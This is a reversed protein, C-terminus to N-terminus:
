LVKCRSLKWQFFIVWVLFAGFCLGCERLLYWPGEWMAPNGKRKEGRPLLFWSAFNQTLKERKDSVCGRSDSRLNQSFLVNEADPGFYLGM